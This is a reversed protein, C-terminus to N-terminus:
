LPDASYAQDALKRAEAVASWYSWASVRYGYRGEIYSRVGSATIEKPITVLEPLDDFDFVKVWPSGMADTADGQEIWKVKVLNNIQLGM